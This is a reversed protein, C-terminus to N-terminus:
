SSSEIFSLSHLRLSHCVPNERVSLESRKVLKKLDLDGETDLDEVDEPSNFFDTKNGRNKGRFMQYYKNIIDKVSPKYAQKNIMISVMDSLADPDVNVESLQGVRSFVQEVNAEAALHSATQKFVFFHLPFLIRLQWMMEFENLVGDEVLRQCEDESVSSWRRIENTVTDFEAPETMESESELVSTGRFM